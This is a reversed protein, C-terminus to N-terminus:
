RILVQIADDNILRRGFAGDNFGCLFPNARGIHFDELGFEGRPFFAISDRTDVM